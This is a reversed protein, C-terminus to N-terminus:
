LNSLISSHSNVIPRLLKFGEAYEVGCEMGRRKGQSLVRQVMIDNPNQCKHCRVIRLKEEIVASIDVHIDPVFHTTQDGGGEECFYLQPKNNILFLAKRTMEAIASHDPHHDIPWPTFVAIPRINSIIDGLAESNEKSAFVDRDILNLFTIEAGLLKCAAREEADRISATKEKSVGALGREGRTACIVHLRYSKKLLEATGAMGFAVDDPHAVIFVVTKMRYKAKLKTKKLL